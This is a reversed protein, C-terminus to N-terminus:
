YLFIRTHLIIVQATIMRLFLGHLASQISRATPKRKGSPPLTNVIGGIIGKKYPNVYPVKNIYVSAINFGYSSLISLGPDDADPYFNRKGCSCLLLIIMCVATISRISKM